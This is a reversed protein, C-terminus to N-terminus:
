KKKPSKSYPKRLCLGLPHYSKIAVMKENRRVLEDKMMNKKFEGDSGADCCSSQMTNFLQHQLDPTSIGSFIDNRRLLEDKIVNKEFSQYYKNTNLFKIYLKFTPIDSYMSSLEESTKPKLYTFNFNKSM